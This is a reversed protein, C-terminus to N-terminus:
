IEQLIDALYDAVDPQNMNEAAMIITQLEERADEYRGSRLIVAAGAINVGLVVNGQLPDSYGPTLDRAQAQYEAIIQFSSAEPMGLSISERLTKLSDPEVFGLDSAIDLLEDELSVPQEEPENGHDQDHHQEPLHSREDRETPMRLDYFV